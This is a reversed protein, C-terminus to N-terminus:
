YSVKRYTAVVQLLVSPRVRTFARLFSNKKQCCLDVLLFTKRECIGCGFFYRLMSNQSLQKKGPKQNATTANRNFTSYCARLKTESAIIGSITTKAIGYKASIESYDTKKEVLTCIEVKQAITLSKRKRKQVCSGKTRCRVSFLSGLTVLFMNRRSKLWDTRTESFFLCVFSCKQSFCVFLRANRLFVFLCPLPISDNM